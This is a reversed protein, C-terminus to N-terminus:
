RGLARCLRAIELAEASLAELAPRDATGDRLPGLGAVLRDVARSLEDMARDQAVARADVLGAWIAEVDSAGATSRHTQLLDAVLAERLLGLSPDAPLWRQQLAVYKGLDHRIRAVAEAPTV